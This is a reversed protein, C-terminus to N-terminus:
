AAWMMTCLSRDAGGYGTADKSLQQISELVALYNFGLQRKVRQIVPKGDFGGAAQSLGAHNQGIYATASNLGFGKRFAVTADTASFQNSITALIDDEAEGCVFRFEDNVGAHGSINAADRRRVTQANYTWSAASTYLSAVIQRRNWRNWLGIECRNAEATGNVDVQDFNFDILASGNAHITGLNIAGRAPITYTAAANTIPNKNLPLGNVWEIESAATGRASTGAGSNSWATMSLKVTETPWHGFAWIDLVENTGAIAPSFSADNLSLSPMTPGCDVMTLCVGNWVPLRRGAKAVLYLTAQNTLGSTPAVVGSVLSLVTQPPTVDTTRVQAPMGGSLQIKTLSVDAAIPAVANGRLDHGDMHHDLDEGFVVGWKQSVGSTGYTKLPGALTGKKIYFGARDIAETAGGFGGDTGRRGNNLARVGGSTHIRTTESLMGAKAHGNLFVEGLFVDGNNETIELGHADWSAADLPADEAAGAAMPGPGTPATGDEEAHLSDIEHFTGRTNDLKVSAKGNQGTFIGGKLRVAPISAGADEGAPARGVARFGYGSNGFIQLNHHQGPAMGGTVDKHVRILWGDDGASGVYCDDVYWQTGIANTITTEGQAIPANSQLYNHETAWEAYLKRASSFACPGLLFNIASRRSWCLELTIQVYDDRPTKIGVAGLVETEWNTARPPVTRDTGIRLLGGGAVGPQISVIDNDADTSVFCTSFGSHGEVLTGNGPVELPGNVKYRGAPVEGRLGRPTLKDFFTQLNDTQDTGVDRDANPFERLFSLIGHDQFLLPLVAPAVIRDAIAGLRVQERTAYASTGIKEPTLSGDPIQGLVADVIQEALAEDAEELATIAADGADVDRRLEQLVTTVEDAEREMSPTHLRGARSFDTSREHTRRATIRVQVAADGSTPRPAVSFTVTAGTAGAPSGTQAKTFGTTITTFRTAPAIKRQVVLDETDWVPGANFTFVTQAASAELTVQRTSRTIPIATSM